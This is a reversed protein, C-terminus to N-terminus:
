HFAFQLRDVKGPPSLPPPTSCWLLALGNDSVQTSVATTERRVRLVPSATLHMYLVALVPSQTHVAIMLPTPLIKPFPPSLDLNYTGAHSAHASFITSWM